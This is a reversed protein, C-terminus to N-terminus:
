YSVLIDPGIAGYLEQTWFCALIIAVVTNPLNRNNFIMKQPNMGQVGHAPSSAPTRNLISVGHLGSSAQGNIMM